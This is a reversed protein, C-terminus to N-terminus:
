RRDEKEKADIECICIEKPLGCESCFLGDARSLKEEEPMNEEQRWLCCNSRRTKGGPVTNNNM